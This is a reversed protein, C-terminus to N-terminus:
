GIWYRRMLRGDRRSTIHSEFVGGCREIVTASGVNDDDCTVLAREVGESRAIVLSQRLVETAHGRRRHDPLIGYGIHGGEHALFDNLEFRISTRGVVVGDVTAVLFASRVAWSPAGPGGCRAAAIAAVYDSWTTGPQWFLALEFGDQDLMARHGALVVAEDDIRLPRLVLSV